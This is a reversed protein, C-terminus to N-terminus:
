AASRFGKRGHIAVALLDALKGAGRADARIPCAVSPPKRFISRDDAGGTKITSGSYIVAKRGLKQEILELFERALALTMQNGPTQEFDLAVLTNDDPNAAGLFNDVQADAPAATGWHYAGWLLGADTALTRRSAYQDDRGSAGTSAKHIVGLLGAVKAESFSTVADYHYLDVVTATPFQTAQPPTPVAAAGAAPLAVQQLPGCAGSWVYTGDTLRWWLRNGQVEDGAAIAGVDLLSGVNQKRLVASLLSPATQRVNLKATVAVTGTIAIEASHVPM